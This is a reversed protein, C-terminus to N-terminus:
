AAAENQNSVREDTLYMVRSNTIAHGSEITFWGDAVVNKAQRMVEFSM